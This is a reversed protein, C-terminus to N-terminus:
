RNKWRPSRRELFAQRGELSDDLDMLRELYLSETQRLRNEIQETRVARTASLALHLVPRSQDALAAILETLAQTIQSEPVVRTILGIRLAEDASLLKGLLILELTKRYGIVPPLILPALSPLGGVKLEPQGFTARETALAFDCLAALENGAGLAVGRIVAVTPRPFAHLIRYALHLRELLLFVDERTHDKLDLGGCFAPLDSELVLVTFDPDEGVSELLQILKGLLELDLFNLPPRNLILSAISGHVKLRVLAPDTV